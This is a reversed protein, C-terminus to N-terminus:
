GGLTSLNYAQALAGPVTLPLKIPSANFTSIVKPLIAMKGTNIIGLWSCPINKWRNTHGIIEKLLQKYNEKFLDKM